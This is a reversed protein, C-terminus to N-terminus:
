RESVQEEPAVARRSTTAGGPVAAARDPPSGSDPASRLRREVLRLALMTEAITRQLVYFWGPWGDFILGKVFLGYWMVAIPGFWGTRRFRDPTNLGAGSPAALLVAEQASYRVQDAFWRELPKRDDHQVCTMLDQTRGQVALRQTHGDQEYRCRDRRFLVVRPPYLSARLPTGFVCYTFATSYGAVDDAPLLQRIESVVEDSVIYDADLSLVWPTRVGDVGYNWQSTHDDFARQVVDVNAYRGCIAVTDDTSFSDVVLVRAAWGLRSLTREINASENFTLVLPTIDSLRM